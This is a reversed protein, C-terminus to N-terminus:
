HVHRSGLTSPLSNRPRDLLKRFGDVTTRARAQEWVPIQSEDVVPGAIAEGFHKRIQLEVDCDHGMRQLLLDDTLLVSLCRDLTGAGEIGQLVPWEPQLGPATATRDGQHHQRLVRIRHKLGPARKRHPCVSGSRHGGTLRLVCVQDLQSDVELVGRPQELIQMLVTVPHDRELSM